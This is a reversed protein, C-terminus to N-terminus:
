LKFQERMLLVLEAKAVELTGVIKLGDLDHTGFVEFGANRPKIGVVVAGVFGRKGMDALMERVGAIRPDEAPAVPRIPTPPVPEPVPQVIESM